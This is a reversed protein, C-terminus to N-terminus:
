LRFYSLLSLMGEDLQLGWVFEEMETFVVKNEQPEGNDAETDKTSSAALLAIAQPDSPLGEEDQKQLALKRARDLSKYLDADADGFVFGDEDEKEVVLMREMRLTRSAEDAKMYASQFADKKKEAEIREQEAKEAQRKGDARSGRDGEGLGASRAEAELAEIDLKDRKRLSKKKKPKKFKLMEETTYYDTSIKASSTLDEFHPTVSAGEIRRRLQLNFCGCSIM